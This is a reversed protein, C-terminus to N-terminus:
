GHPVVEGIFLLRLSPTRRRADPLQDNERWSITAVATRQLTPM